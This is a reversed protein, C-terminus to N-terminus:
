NKLLQDVNKTTQLFDSNPGLYGKISMADIEFSNFVNNTERLTLERPLDSDLQYSNDTNFM